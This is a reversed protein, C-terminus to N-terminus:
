GETAGQRERKNRGRAEGGMRGIEAMHRRNRSVAEGGKRGARKAEESTFEHATGALHAARGGKGAIERQKEPDMAAFGKPAKGRSRSSGSSRERGSPPSEPNSAITPTRASEHDIM